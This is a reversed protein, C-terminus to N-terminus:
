DAIEELRHHLLMRNGAVCLAVTLAEILMPQWFQPYPGAMALNLARGAFAIGFLAAPVLLLDGNRRWGGWVMCFGSLLFFAAFDARLTSLGRVGDAVLGFGTAAADPQYLFNLGIVAYILGAVFLLATLIFRMTPEGMNGATM